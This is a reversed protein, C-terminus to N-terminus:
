ANCLRTPRLRHVVDESSRSLAVLQCSAKVCLRVEPADPSLELAIQVAVL